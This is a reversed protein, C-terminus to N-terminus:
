ANPDLDVGTVNKPEKWAGTSPKGEKPTGDPSVEQRPSTPQEARRSVIGQLIQKEAVTLRAAWGRREYEEWVADWNIM